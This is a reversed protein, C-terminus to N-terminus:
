APVWARLPYDDRQSFDEELASMIALIIDERWHLAAIQVGIPLGASGADTAAAQREATDRAFTRGTEEGARVRSISFVGAPIGLLNPVMAYGAAPILDIARQHQPAPLAHPPSLFAQYGAQQMDSLWRRVFANRRDILQWYEDASRPRAEVTVAAMWRQGALRLGAVVAHRLSRNMGAVTRIRRVRWDLQSGESLRRAGAGGDAGLLGFYIEMAEGTWDPKIEEVIAGRAALAEAAERVARVIARSAPFYGDDTWCAIKLGKLKVDRPSALPALQTDPESRGDSADALVRLALDLDEVHRALPGSRSIVGEMGRLTRRSGSRPLLFSTTMLGHIGSFHAPVRISGGLDNGLGLPSGRAAILAAEGGTSGGPTRALDWPNNTRGYVPNDCEHWIMIQPLNTKALVIGGARRLRSVLTGDAPLLEDRLHALGICSPTGALHFCEKITIPVGHLPPLSEGAARRVDAQAAEQRAQDYLPIAVAHVQPEIAAIRALYRETAEASSLEGRAIQRALEAASLELLPDHPPSADM